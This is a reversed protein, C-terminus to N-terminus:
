LVVLRDNVIGALRGFGHGATWEGDCEISYAETMQFVSSTKFLASRSLLFSWLYPSSIGRAVTVNRDLGSQLQIDAGIVFIGCRAVVLVQPYM